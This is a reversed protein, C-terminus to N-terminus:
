ETAILFAWEKVNNSQKKFDVYVSHRGTTGCNFFGLYKVSHDFHEFEAKLFSRGNEM